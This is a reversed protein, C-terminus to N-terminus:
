WTHRSKDQLWLLLCPGCGSLGWTSAIIIGFAPPVGQFQFPLFGKQQLFEIFPFILPSLQTLLLNTFLYLGPGQVLVPGVSVSTLGKLACLRVKM